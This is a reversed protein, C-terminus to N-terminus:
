INMQRSITAMCCLKHRIQFTNIWFQQDQVAVNDVSPSKRLLIERVGVHRDETFKEFHHLVSGLDDVDGSIM